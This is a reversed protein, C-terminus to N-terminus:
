GADAGAGDPKPAPATATAVEIIKVAFTQDRVLRDRAAQCEALSGEALVRWQRYKSRMDRSVLQHTVMM